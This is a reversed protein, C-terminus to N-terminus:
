PRRMQGQMAGARITGDRLDIVLQKGTHVDFQGNELNEFYVRADAADNSRVAIRSQERNFEIWAANVERVRPGDQDRLYVTGSAMLSALRMPARTLGGGRQAPQSQDDVAFWCELRDCDLTATRGQPTEVSQPDAVAKPLKEGLDVMAAGTRHVFVVGDQFVVTDRRQPGDQGLTYTMRGTCQMATQSAGRSLLASPLGLVEGASQKDDVGRRDTMLLQTLGTTFIQRNVIDMELLPASISSHVIPEAEDAGYSESSVLANEAVLRVPEKRMREPEDGLGSLFRDDSAAPAEAPGVIRRAQQWLDRWSPAAPRTASGPPPAVDELLLTLTDSQLQEEDSAAAVDGEFRVTNKRGDIHLLKRSTVVIPTPDKRQQGQFSRQSKFALRSPGDVHLTQADRDLDIREGRVAFPEAYVLGLKEPTGTVTASALWNPEVFSGTIRQGRAARKHEPDLLEARGVVDLTQVVFDPGAKKGKPAAALEATVDDGRVHAKGRALEVAGQAHMRNPYLVRESTRDFSLELRESDVTGDRSALRVDGSATATDLLEEISQDGADPRFGVALQNAILKQEGLDVHVDGVFVASELREFEMVADAAPRTSAANEAIKLEGWHAARITAPKTGAASGRRSRLELPGVLKVLRAVRDVYVGAATASMKEGLALDITQDPLPELWIRRTEDHYEVQGCLITAARRTLTVPTGVATFHMRHRAATLPAESPTLTLKGTWRVVLRNGGERAPRTSPRTATPRLLRGASAGIDFLLRVENARMGGVIEEDRYQEAVIGGALTGVYTTLRRPGNKRRDSPKSEPQTAAPAESRDAAEADATDVADFLGTPRFFVFEEGHALSLTEVRNDAQNWVLDLGSGAVEFEESEIFVHDATRLEGRDLNFELRDLHMTILDQPREEKPTREPNTERDIIIRVHGTLWGEKPRMQSREIRDATLQGEDALITAVMGSPLVMALEPQTARIENKSGPVPQWDQCSFLDTPRGTQENYRRFVIKGGAPMAADQGIRMPAGTQPLPSPIQDAPTKAQPGAPNSVLLTYGVFLIVLVALSSLALVVNRIM